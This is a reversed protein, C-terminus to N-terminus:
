LQLSTVSSIYAMFTIYHCKKSHPYGCYFGLNNGRQVVFLIVRPELANEADVAAASWLMRSFSLPETTFQLM